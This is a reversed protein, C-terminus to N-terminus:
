LMTQFLQEVLYDGAPIATGTPEAASGFGSYVTDFGYNGDLSAFGEQFQTGMLPAELCREGATTPLLQQDDPYTLENGHADRATCGTPQEWTETIASSIHSGVAFNGNIDLEWAGSPDCITGVNTGCAVGGATMDKALSGDPALEYTDTPDCPTAPHTGCFVPKSVVVLLNPIGSAWPEVAQYQPDLENRTVDYFVTGVIGGNM